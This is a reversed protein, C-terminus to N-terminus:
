LSNIIEKDVGKISELYATRETKLNAMIEQYEKEGYYKRPDVNTLDLGDVKIPVEYGLDEDYVWDINGRVVSEICKLTMDVTIDNAEKGVYGTNVVFCQIKDINSIIRRIRNINTHEDGLIFPDFGVQRKSEGARTADEASTIVSEGLAYFAASQEPNMLRGIPPLEPRRTNFIIFDLSSLDITAGTGELALRDIVARTNHTHEFNKWDINGNEDSHVNEMISGSTTVAATIEKHEPCNDCKVYFGKESGFASGDELILNIDDQLILVSEPSTLGHLHCTLTTKGTGSLGFILAGKEIIINSGNVLRYIKSGAHLGLGGRDKRLIEMAMRLISMKMEGYYDIGLIITMREEPFVLVKREPYEPVDITLIDSAAVDHDSEFFNTKLMLAKNAHKKDVLATASLQIKKDQGVKVKMLVFDQPNIFDLVKDIISVFESRNHSTVIQTFKASRATIETKFLPLNYENAISKERTWQELDSFSPNHQEVPVGLSFEVFRTRM